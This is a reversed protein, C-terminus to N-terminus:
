RGLIHWDTFPDNQVLEYSERAALCNCQRETIISLIRLDGERGGKQAAIKHASEWGVGQAM